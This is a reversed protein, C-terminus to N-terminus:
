FQSSLMTELWLRIFQVADDVGIRQYSEKARSLYEGYPSIGVYGIEARVARRYRRLRIVQIKRYYDYERAVKLYQRAKAETQRTLKGTAPSIVVEGARIRELYDEWDGPAPKAVSAAAPNLWKPWITTIDGDPDQFFTGNPYEDWFSKMKGERFKLRTELRPLPVRGSPHLESSRAKTLKLALLEHPQKFDFWVRYNPDAPATLEISYGDPENTELSPYFIGYRATLKGGMTTIEFPEASDPYPLDFSQWFKLAAAYADICLNDALVEDSIPWDELTAAFTQQGSIFDVSM